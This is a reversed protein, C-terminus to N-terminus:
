VRQYLHMAEIWPKWYEDIGRQFRWGSWDHKFLGSDDDGDQHDGQIRYSGTLPWMAWSVQNETTFERICNQLPDTFLEDNQRRGFESLIVPTLRVAPECDKTIDCGPPPSIGLANFGDRYFQAKIVDCRGTDLDESMGYLHLEWVIKDAWPHADLDFFLPKRRSGDRVADCKYCPATWLNRRTTLASLDQDYQLGSWSILLDPNAAHIAEAGASMNGVLTPWGYELGDVKSSSRLENRLSMSVVNPHQKAWRAVYELGRLWTDTPFLEDDFWAGGDGHSCCWGAKGIHVDPHVFIGEKLAARALDSWIEFRTTSHTWTPNNKIMADAVRTGNEIGLADILSKKMTVDTGDNSYIQDIMEIAYPMRIFNLGLSAMDSMIEDLPRYEIGEPLM